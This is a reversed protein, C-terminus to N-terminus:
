RVIQADIEPVQANRICREVDHVDLRGVHLLEGLDDGAGVEVRALTVYEHVAAGLAGDLEAVHAVRSEAVLVGLHELLLLVRGVLAEEGLDDGRDRVDLKAAVSAVDDRAVVQRQLHPVHVHLALGHLHDGDVVVEAGLEAIQVLVIADKVLKLAAQRAVARVKEGARVVVVEVQEVWLALVVREHLRALEGLRACPALRCGGTSRAFWALGLGTGLADIRIGDVKALLDEM